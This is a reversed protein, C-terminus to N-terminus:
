LDLNYSKLKLETNEFKGLRPWSQVQEDGDHPFGHARQTVEGEDEANDDKDESDHSHLEESFAVNTLIL